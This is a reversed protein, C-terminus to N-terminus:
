SLNANIDFLNLQTDHGKAPHSIKPGNPFMNVTSWWYWQWLQSFKGGCTWGCKDEFGFVNEALKM